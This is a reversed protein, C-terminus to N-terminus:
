ADARMVSRMHLRVVSFFRTWAPRTAKPPGVDIRTQPRRRNPSHMVLNHILPHRITERLQESDEGERTRVPTARGDLARHSPAAAMGAREDVEVCMGVFRNLAERVHETYRLRRGDLDSVPEDGVAEELPARAGITADTGKAQGRLAAPGGGAHQSLSGLRELLEDRHELWGLAHGELLQQLLEDRRERLVAGAGQRDTTQAVSARAAPAPGAARELV